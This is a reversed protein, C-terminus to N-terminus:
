RRILPSQMDPLALGAPSVRCASGEKRLRLVVSRAVALWGLVDLGAQNEVVGALETANPQRVIQFGDDTSKTRLGELSREGRLRQKAPQARPPPLQFGQQKVLFEKGPHAVDIGILCEVEGFQM